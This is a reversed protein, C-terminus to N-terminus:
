NQYNLQSLPIQAFSGITRTTERSSPHLLNSANTDEYSVCSYKQMKQGNQAYEIKSSENQSYDNAVDFSRKSGRLTSLSSNSNLLLNPNNNYQISLNQMSPVSYSSGTAHPASGTNVSAVLHHHNPPTFTLGSTFSRMNSASSSTTTASNFQNPSAFTLNATSAPM